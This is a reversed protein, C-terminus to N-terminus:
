LLDNEVRSISFDSCLLRPADWQTAVVATDTVRQRGERDMSGGPHKTPEELQQHLQILWSAHADQIDPLSARIHTALVASIPLDHEFMMLHWGWGHTEMDGRSVHDRNFAAHILGPRMVELEYVARRQQQQRLRVKHEPTLQVKRSASQFPRLVYLLLFLTAVAAGGLLQLLWDPPTM